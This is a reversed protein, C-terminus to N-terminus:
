AAPVPVWCLGYRRGSDWETRTPWEFSWKYVLPDTARQQAELKCSDDGAAQMNPGLYEADQPIPIVTVARWSHPRACIVQEFGQESPASNGCTGLTDLASDADLAGKEAGPLKALQNQAGVAVVDCRFWDAGADSEALTPSFWIASFRSLKQDDASGGIWSPVKTPCTSAIQDQIEKADVALLHGDVIPDITGVFITVATHEKKCSLPKADSTPRTAAKLDIRYCDGVRPVRPPPTSTPTVTATSRTPASREVGAQKQGGGCGTLLAAVLLPLLALRPCRM